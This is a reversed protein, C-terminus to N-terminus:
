IRESTVAFMDYEVYATKDTTDELDVYLKHEKKTLRHIKDLGLWIECNLNVFSENRLREGNAVAVCAM